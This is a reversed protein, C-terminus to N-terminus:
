QFLFSGRSTMGRLTLNPSGYRQEVWPLFPNKAPTIEGADFNVIWQRHLCAFTTRAPMKMRFDFPEGDPSCELRLSLEDLQQESAPMPYALCGVVSYESTDLAPWSRVYLWQDQQAETGHAVNVLISQVVGPAKPRALVIAAACTLASLVVVIIISARPRLLASAIALLAFMAAGLVVLQRMELPEEPERGLSPTYNDLDIEAGSPGAIMPRRVWYAGMQEWPAKAQRTRVAITIGCALFRELQQDLLASDSELVIADLADWAVPAYAPPAFQPDLSATIVKQDPFLKRAFAEADSGGTIAVLRESAALEHLPGATARESSTAGTIQTPNGRLMLLPLIVDGDQPRRVIQTPVSAGASLTLTGDGGSVRVAMYQGSRYYGGLPLSLQLPAGSASLAVCAILVALLPRM